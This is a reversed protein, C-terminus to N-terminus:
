RILRNTLSGPPVVIGSTENTMLEPPFNTNPPFGPNVGPRNPPFRFRNTGQFRQGRPFNNSLFPRGPPPNNTSFARGPPLNTGFPRGGQGFSEDRPLVQRTNPDINDDNLSPTLNPDTGFAAGPPLPGGPPTIVSREAPNRGQPFAPNIFGPREVGAGIGRAAPAAAGVGAGPPTGIGTAPPVGIGTAPPVGIGTAPPVGIGTAPPVGIGTAPPVGIGTAPPTAIGAGPLTSGATGAGAGVGTAAGGSSSVQAFLSACSVLGGLIIAAKM